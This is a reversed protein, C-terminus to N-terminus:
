YNDKERDTIQLEKYAGNLEGYMRANDLSLAMIPAITSLLSLDKDNFTGSKKNLAELVGITKEKKQLPVAIMSQTRCETVDDIKKFHRPDNDIELILEPEGSSFVSGAIGQNTPFRFERLNPTDGLREDELWRFIFEDEYDDHLIVSVAEANMLRKMLGVIHVILNDIDLHQYLSQSVNLLVDLMEREDISTSNADQQDGSIAM